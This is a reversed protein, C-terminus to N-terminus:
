IEDYCVKVFNRVKIDFSSYRIGTLKRLFNAACEEYTWGEHLWEGVENLFLNQINM